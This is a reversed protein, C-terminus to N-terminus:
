LLYRLNIVKIISSVGITYIYLKGSWFYGVISQELASKKKIFASCRTRLNKINSPNCNGWQGDIRPVGMSYGCGLITFKLSM